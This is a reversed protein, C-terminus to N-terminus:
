SSSLAHLTSESSRPPPDNPRRRLLIGLVVVAATLLGCLGGLGVVLLNGSRAPATLVAQTAVQTVLVTVDAADLGTVSKAVLEAVESTKVLLAGRTRLVVAATPRLQATPLLPDPEAVTLHVRAHSVSPLSELTDVLAAERATLQEARVEGPLMALKGSMGPRPEVPPLGQDTLVALAQDQERPPVTLSFTPGRASRGTALKDAHLGAQRLVMVAENAHRESLDHYLEADCGSFGFLTGLLSLKQAWAWFSAPLRRRSLM